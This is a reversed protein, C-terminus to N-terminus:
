EYGTAVAIMTAFLRWSPQEQDESAILRASSFAALAELIRELTPNEWEQEGSSRFDSLAEHVFEAFSDRNFVESPDAVTSRGTDHTM